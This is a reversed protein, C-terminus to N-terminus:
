YVLILILYIVYIHTHTQTDKRKVMPYIIGMNPYVASRIVSNSVTWWADSTITSEIQLATTKFDIYYLCKM